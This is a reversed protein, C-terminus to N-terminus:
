RIVTQNGVATQILDVLDNLNMTTMNGKLASIGKQANDLMMIAGTNNGAELEAKTQNIAVETSNVIAMNDRILMNQEEL